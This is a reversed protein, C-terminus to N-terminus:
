DTELSVHTFTKATKLLFYMHKDAPENNGECTSIKSTESLNFYLMNMGWIGLTFM